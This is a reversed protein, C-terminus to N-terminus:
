KKMMAMVEKHADWAKQWSRWYDPIEIKSLAADTPDLLARTEFMIALEDVWLADQPRSEGNGFRVNMEQPGHYFGQPHFTADGAGVLGARPRYPKAYFLFEDWENMHYYPPSHIWRPKFTSVVISGDATAFTAFISPDTHMTPTSVAHILDTCLVFPYPSGRYAIRGVPGNYVVTKWEDNRKLMVEREQYLPEASSLEPVKLDLQNYPVDPLGDHVPKLLPQPSEIGIMLTHELMPRICYETLRPIYLYDGRGARLIGFSTECLFAGYHVYWVEDGDANVMRKSDVIRTTGGPTVEWYLCLAKIRVAHDRSLFLTVPMTWSPLDKVRIAMPRQSRSLVDKMVAPPSACFGQMGFGLKDAFLGEDPRSAGDFKVRGKYDPRVAERDIYKEVRAM